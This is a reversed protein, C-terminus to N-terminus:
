HLILLTGNSTRVATTQLTGDEPIYRQTTRQTDVSTESSCIAEMKLTSFYASRSVPTFAPATYDTSHLGVNRLFMDRGDEPDFFYVSCSVLTFAPATYETSHWAANRLFMDGGEEPDFFYASRSVMTFIWSIKQDQLHFRYTGGFRRKVSLLSCPTIDWFITSKIYTTNLLETRVDCFASCTAAFM